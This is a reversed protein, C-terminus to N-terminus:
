KKELLVQGEKQLRGKIKGAILGLVGPLIVEIRVVDELVDLHGSITQGLAGLAFRLRDGDWRKELRSAQGGFQGSFREFGDEIRRRAEAKALNHPVSVILPKSM